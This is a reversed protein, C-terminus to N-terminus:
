RSLSDEHRQRFYGRIEDRLRIQRPEWTELQLLGYADYKVDIDPNYQARLLIENRSAYRRNKKHGHWDHWVTGPVYGVDRKIWRECLTQWQLLRDVYPQSSNVNGPIVVHVSGILAHAMYYDGAGLISYDILRGVKDLADVNAAWALGPRGFSKHGHPYQERHHKFQETNPTGHNIYNFMFSNMPCGIAQQEDDVDIMSSWMQVFEYHQLAHWTEEFWRRPPQMPGCDADIWAVKTAGHQRAREIGLNILNEKLWLEEFSRVQVHLLNDARTVMFPREGFAQEVTVLHVGASHCMQKFRWYLEYRRMFRQPNSIVTVVYFDSLDAGPRFPHAGLGCEEDNHM